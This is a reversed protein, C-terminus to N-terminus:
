HPEPSVRSLVSGLAEISIHQIRDAAAKPSLEGQLLSTIAAAGGDEIAPFCPLPPYTIMMNSITERTLNLRQHDIDNQPLVDALADIHACMSGGSADLTHVDYSCLRELLAAAGQLDGCTRPIAWAHCGSYSVSKATGRPYLSPVLPLSSSSIARWGGPWAAAMDIRGELLARDVDDYHWTPVDGPARAGLDAMLQLAAIAYDSNMTPQLRDDFLEGGAGVVLEFFMGFAGSDRGTFGFVTPTQILDAWTRPANAIRDARRWALRVDILRPVCWQRGQFRCLEVAAPALRRTDVDVGEVHARGKPSVREGSSRAEHSNQDLPLLWQVQSPAYKSHTSLVDIRAGHHLMDAVTRNLTPHDAEVVIEVEGPAFALRIHDYMPGAVLAVRLAM